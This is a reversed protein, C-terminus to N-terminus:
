GFSFFLVIIKNFLYMGNEQKIQLRRFGGKVILFIKLEIAVVNSILSSFKGGSSRADLNNFRYLKRAPLTPMQWLILTVNIKIANNL